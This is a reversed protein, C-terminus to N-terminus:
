MLLIQSVIEEYEAEDLEVVTSRQALKAKTENSLEFEWGNLSKHNWHVKRTRYFQGHLIAEDFSYDGIIIGVAGIRRNKLYAVVKDNLQMEDRFKRVNSDDPLEPYWIAIIEKDRCTEWVGSEPELIVRWFRTPPM